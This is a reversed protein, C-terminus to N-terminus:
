CIEFKPQKILISGGHFDSQNIGGYCFNNGFCFHCTGYMMESEMFCNSIIVNTNYGIGVEALQRNKEDKFDNHTMENYRKVVEKGKQTESVVKKLKGHEIYFYLPEDIKEYFLAGDVVIVGNVSDEIPATLIENGDDLWLRSVFYLETGTPSTIKYKAKNELNSLLANRMKEDEIVNSGYVRYTSDIPLISVHSNQNINSVKPQGHSFDLWKYIHLTTFTDPESLILTELDLMVCAEFAQNVSEISEIVVLYVRKGKTDGYLKINEGLLHHAEDCMVFLPMNLSFYNDVLRKACHYIM